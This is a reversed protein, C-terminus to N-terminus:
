PIEYSSCEAGNNYNQVNLQKMIEVTCKRLVENYNPTLSILTVRDPIVELMM